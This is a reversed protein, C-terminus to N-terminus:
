SVWTSSNMSRSCVGLFMMSRATRRGPPALAEALRFCAMSGSISDARFSNWTVGVSQDRMFSSIVPSFSTQCMWRVYVFVSAIM